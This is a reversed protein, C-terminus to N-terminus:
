GENTNLDSVECTDAITIYEMKEGYRHCVTYNKSAHIDHAGNVANCDETVDLNSYDYTETGHKDEKNEFYSDSVTFDENMNINNSGYNASREKIGMNKRYRSSITHDKRININGFGYTELVDTNNAKNGCQNEHIKCMHSTSPAMMGCIHCLEEPRNEEMPILSICHLEHLHGLYININRSTEVPEIVTVPADSISSVVTIRISFVNAAAILTLYDGWTGDMSLESLYSNWGNRHSIFDEFNVTRGTGLRLSPNTRGPKRGQIILLNLRIDITVQIVNM